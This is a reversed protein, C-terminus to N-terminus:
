FKFINEFYKCKEQINIPMLMEIEDNLNFYSARALKPAILYKNFHTCYPADIAEREVIDEGYPSYTEYLYEKNKTTARECGFCYTRNKPNKSCADEHRQMGYKSISVKSCYDCKYAKQVEKM